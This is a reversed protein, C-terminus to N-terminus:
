YALRVFCGRIPMAENHAVILGIREAILAADIPPETIGAEWLCHAVCDDITAAFERTPIEALM